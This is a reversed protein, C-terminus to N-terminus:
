RLRVNNAPRDWGGVTVDTQADIREQPWEQWPEIYPGFVFLSLRRRLRALRRRIM